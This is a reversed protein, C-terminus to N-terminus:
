CLAENVNLMWFLSEEVVVQGSVRVELGLRSRKTM